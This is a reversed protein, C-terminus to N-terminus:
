LISFFSTMPPLFTSKALILFFTPSTLCFWTLQSILDLCSSALSSHYYCVPLSACDTTTQVTETFSLSRVMPFIMPCFLLFRYLHCWNFLLFLIYAYINANTSFYGFWDCFNSYKHYSYFCFLWISVLICPQQTCIYYLFSFNQLILAGTCPKQAATNYLSYSIQSQVGTAPSKLLLTISPSPFRRSQVSLVTHYLFVSIQSIPGQYRGTLWNFSQYSHIKEPGYKPNNIAYWIFTTSLYRWTPKLLIVCLPKCSIALNSGGSGKLTVNDCLHGSHFCHNM